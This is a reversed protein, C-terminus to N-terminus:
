ANGVMDRSGMPVSNNTCSMYKWNTPVHHCSKRVKTNSIHIFNCADMPSVSPVLASCTLQVTSGECQEARRRPSSLVCGLRCGRVPFSHNRHFVDVLSNLFRFESLKFFKEAFSFRFCLCILPGQGFGTWSITDSISISDLSWWVCSKKKKKQSSASSLIFWKRMVLFKM